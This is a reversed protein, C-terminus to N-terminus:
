SALPTFIVTSFSVKHTLTTQRTAVKPQLSL